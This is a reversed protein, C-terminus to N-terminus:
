GGHPDNTPAVMSVGCWAGGQVDCWRLSWHFTSAPWSAGHADPASVAARCCSFRVSVLAIGFESVRLRFFRMWRRGCASVALEGWSSWTTGSEWYFHGDIRDHGPAIDGVVAPCDSASRWVSHRGSSCVGGRRHAGSGCQRFLTRPRRSPGVRWQQQRPRSMGCWLWLAM